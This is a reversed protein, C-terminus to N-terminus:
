NLIYYKSFYNALINNSNEFNELGSFGFAIYKVSNNLDTFSFNMCLANGKLLDINQYEDKLTLNNDNICNSPLEFENYFVIIDELENFNEDYLNIQPLYNVSKDQNKITKNLSYIASILYKDNEKNKTYKANIFSSNENVNKNFNYVNYYKIAKSSTNGHEDTAKFTIFSSDAIEYSLSCTSFEDSCTVEDYNKNDDVFILFPKSSSITPATRDVYGSIVSIYESNPDSAIYGEVGYNTKIKYWYYEATDVHELVTYVEDKYVDGLDESEITPLSRINIRKVEIKIQTKTKDVINSQTKNESKPWFLIAIFLIVAGLVLNLILNKSINNRAEVM